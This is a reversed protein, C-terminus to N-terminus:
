TPREPTKIPEGDKLRYGIRGLYKPDKLPNGEFAIFSAECGADLCGVTRDPFIARPTDMTALRLLAPAPMVKKEFAAILGPILTSGYANTAIALPAGADRLKQLNQREWSVLDNPRDKAWETLIITSVMQTEAARRADEESILCDEAVDVDFYPSDPDAASDQYCPLHTLIDADADLAARFDSLNSASVALRKGAEHTLEAILPLLEPAIGGGPGLKGYGEEHRDSKRLFVKVHDPDEELLRPLTERVDDETRVVYYANGEQLRSKQIEDARSVQDEYSRIGLALAEYIEAPHSDAGTIGGLSTAVDVQGPGSLKERIQQVGRTPATMTMAYFAGSELGLGTHWGLTYPGDFHHTHADGLPPTMYHGSLDVRAGVGEAPCDVIVADGICLTRPQFTEGDFVLAGEFATINQSSPDAVSQVSSCATLTLAAALLSKSTM